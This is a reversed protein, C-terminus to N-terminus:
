LRWQPRWGNAAFRTEIAEASADVFAGRYILVPFRSNAALKTSPLIHKEVTAMPAAIHIYWRALM